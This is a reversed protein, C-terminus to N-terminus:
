ITQSLRTTLMEDLPELAERTSMTNESELVSKGATMVKREPAPHELYPMVRTRHAARFVQHGTLPALLICAHCSVRMQNVIRRIEETIELDEGDKIQRRLSHRRLALGFERQRAPIYRVLNEDSLYRDMGFFADMAQFALVHNGSLGDYQVYKGDVMRGVGWGQFGQCYSLWVKHSIKADTLNNYFVQLLRRQQHTINRLHKLCSAKENAEFHVIALVM